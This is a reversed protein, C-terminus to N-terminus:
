LTPKWTSLNHDRPTFLSLIARPLSITGGADRIKVVEGQIMHPGIMRIEKEEASHFM